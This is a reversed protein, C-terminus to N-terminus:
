TVPTMITRVVQGAQQADVVENIAPLDATGDILREVPLRGTRWLGVLIPLDRHMSIGGYFSGTLRKDDHFLEYAPIQVTESPRGAGVVTVTGGCRAARWAALTTAPGVADADSVIFLRSRYRM